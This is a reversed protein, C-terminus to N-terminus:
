LEEMKKFSDMTKEMAEPIKDFIKDMIKGTIEVEMEAVQPLYNNTVENGIQKITKQRIEETMQSYAGMMTMIVIGTVLLLVSIQAVMLWTM